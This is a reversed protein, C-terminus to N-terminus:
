GLLALPFDEIIEYRSGERGLISEYLCVSEVSFQLCQLTLMELETKEFRVPKRFRLLTMHPYFPRKEVEINLNQLLLALHNWVALLQVNAVQGGLAGVRAWTTGPLMRIHDLTQEHRVHMRIDPLRRQLSDIQSQEASGIFHMTLHLNHERTWRCDRKHRYFLGYTQLTKQMEILQELNKKNPRIGLFIRKKGM